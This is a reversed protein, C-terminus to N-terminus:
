IYVTNLVRLGIFGDFERGDGDVSGHYQVTVVHVEIWLINKERREEEEENQVFRKLRVM